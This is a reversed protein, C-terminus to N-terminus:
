PTGSRTQIAQRWRLCESKGHDVGLIAGYRNGATIALVFAQEQEELWVRLRRDGGYVEDDTVGKCPVETQLACELMKRDRQPKTAFHM